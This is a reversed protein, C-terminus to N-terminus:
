RATGAPASGRSPRCRAAALLRDAGAGAEREARVVDTAGSFRSSDHWRARPTVPRRVHEAVVEAAGGARRLAAVAVHVEAHGLVAHEREDRHEAVQHRDGDARRQRELAPPLGRTASVNKPSPAKLQPSVCSPSLRAPASFTGATNM